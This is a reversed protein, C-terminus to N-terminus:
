RGVAGVVGCEIRLFCAGGLDAGLPIQQAIVQQEAGGDVARFDAVVDGLAVVAQVVLRRLLADAAHLQGGHALQGLAPRDAGAEGGHVGPHEPARHNRLVAGVIQGVRRFVGKGGPGGVM